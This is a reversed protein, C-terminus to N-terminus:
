SVPEVRAPEGELEGFAHQHAVDGVHLARQVRQARQPTPRAISSKPVPWEESM